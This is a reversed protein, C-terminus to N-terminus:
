ILFGTLFEEVAQGVKRLAQEEEMIAFHDAATVGRVTLRAHSVFEGYGNTEDGNWAENENPLRPIILTDGDFSRPVYKDHLLINHRIQRLLLRRYEVVDSGATTAELASPVKFYKECEADTVGGPRTPTRERAASDILVVFVNDEGAKHLENAVEYALQGAFSFGILLHPGRPQRQRLLACHDVAIAQLSKYHEPQHFSVNEVGVLDFSPLYPALVSHQKSTGTIAFFAFIQHRMQKNSARNPNLYPLFYDEWDDDRQSWDITCKQQQRKLPQHKKTTDYPSLANSRAELVLEHGNMKLSNDAEFGHRAKWQTYIDHLKSQNVKGNGTLPIAVVPVFSRPIMFSPLLQSARAKLTTLIEPIGYDLWSRDSDDRGLSSKEATSINCCFAVLDSDLALVVTHVNQTSLTKEVEGLELRRGNLKVQRDKRSQYMIEGSSSYSGMDGTNYLLGQGFPNDRFVQSTEGPQCYYGDSLQRGSCWITGISGIPVRRMNEDLIHVQMGVSPRGICRPDTSASAHQWSIVVAETPGYANIVRVTPSWREYVANTAMEGALCLSRINPLADPYLLSAISPTVNISTAGSERLLTPLRSMTEEQPALILTAGAYISGFIDSQSVDFVLRAFSFVRDDSDYEIAEGMMVGYGVVQRHPMIVAKPTGTTGSTFLIAATDDSTATPQPLTSSDAVSVTLTSFLDEATIIPCKSGELSTQPLLSQTERSCIIACPKIQELLLETRAPPNDTDLAVYACDARHIAHIACVMNISKDMFIAIRSKPELEIIARLRKTGLEVLSLLAKYTLVVPKQGKKRYFEVATKHPSQRSRNELLQWCTLSEYQRPLQPGSILGDILKHHGEDMLDLDCLQKKIGCRSEAIHHLVIRFTGMIRHLQQEEVEGGHLRANVLVSSDDWALKILLPVDTVEDMDKLMLQFEPHVAAEPKPPPYSTILTTNFLRSKGSLDHIQKLSLADEHEAIDLFLDTVQEIFSSLEHTWDICVRLPVTNICPGVVDQICEIDAGRRGSVVTGFVVDSTSLYTSLVLAWAAHFLLPMTTHHYSAAAQLQAPSVPFSFRHLQDDSAKYTSTNMTVPSKDACLPNALISPEVDRMQSQWFDLDTNELLGREYRSLAIDSFQIIQPPLTQGIYIRRVEDLVKRMSSGDILAHHCTWTCLVQNTDPSRHIYLASLQKGFNAQMPKSPKDMQVLPTAIARPKLTIQVLRIGDQSLGKGHTTTHPALPVFVTRFISHRELVVAWAHELLAVNTDTDSTEYDYSHTYYRSGLSALLMSAQGDTAPAMKEVDEPNLKWDRMGDEIANAQSQMCQPIIYEIPHAPPKPHSGICGSLSSSHVHAINLQPEEAIRRICQAWMDLLERVEDARHIATSYFVGLDLEGAHNLGCEIDLISFRRNTPDQYMGLDMDINDFSTYMSKQSRQGLYNFTIMGDVPATEIASSLDVRAMARRRTQEVASAFDGVTGAVPVNFIIPIIRTFWGVTRTLDLEELNLDRGHSEFHLQVKDTPPLESQWSSLGLILGALIMDVPEANGHRLQLTSIDVKISMFDGSGEANESLHNKQEATLFSGRSFDPSTTPNQARAKVTLYDAWEAFSSFESAIPIGQLLDDLDMWIVQWSVIDIALHHVFIACYLQDGVHFGGIACIRGSTLDLSSQLKELEAPLEQMSLLTKTVFKTHGLNQMPICITQDKKETSHRSVVLRLMPHAEVIDCWARRFDEFRHKKNLKIVHGQNFWDENARESAFFWDIIPTFPIPSSVMHNEVDTTSRSTGSLTSVAGADCNKSGAPDIFEILANITPYQYIDKVKLKFGMKTLTTRLRIVSISDGGLTFFSTEDSIHRNGLIEQFAGQIRDKTTPTNGLPPLTPTHVAMNTTIPTSVAEVVDFPESAITGGFFRVLDAVTPNQYIDKVKCKLGAKTFASRLRIVSISDGGLSFFNSSGQLTKVGLITGIAAKIAVQVRNGDGPPPNEVPLSKTTPTSGRVEVVGPEAIDDARTSTQGASEVNSLAIVSGMTPQRQNSEELKDNTAAQPLYRDLEEESLEVVLKKVAKRDLKGNNNMPIDKVPIWLSPMFYPPLETKMSTQLRVLLTALGALSITQLAGKAHITSDTFVVVLCDGSQRKIMMAISKGQDLVKNAASEMAGLEVRLGRLNVMTDMRGLCVISGDTEFRACDGTLYIRGYQKTDQFAQPGPPAKLYGRALQDGGLALQGVEGIGVQNLNEDLVYVFVNELPRGINAIDTDPFCQRGLVDVTAETPGYINFLTAKAAWVERCLETMPEGGIDLCEVDPLANADLAGAITPTTAIHTIKLTAMTDQLDALMWDKRGICLTAGVSLTGFIDIVSVDFTWPALQLLRKNPALRYLPRLAVTANRLAYNQIAVGKPKGTSGSTYLVYALHEPLRKTILPTPSTPLPTPIGLCSVGVGALRSKLQSALNIRLPEKEPIFVVAAPECDQIITMNWDVPNILEIPVYAGGSMMIALITIVREVSADGVICIARNLMSQQGICASLYHALGSVMHEMEKYSVSVENEFIIATASPRVRAQEMVQVDAFPTSEVMLNPTGHFWAPVKQIPQTELHQSTSNVKLELAASETADNVSTRGRSTLEPYRPAKVDACLGELNSLHIFLGISRIRRLLSEYELCIESVEAESVRDPNFEVSMGLKSKGDPKMERTITFALPFKASIGPMVEPLIEKCPQIARVQERAGAPVNHYTFMTDFDGADCGLTELLKEFPIDSYELTQTLRNQFFQLNDLISSGEKLKSFKVPLTNIFCGYLNQERPGRCTAPILVSSGRTQSRLSLLLQFTFLYATFPTSGFEYAWDVPDFDFTASCNVTIADPYGALESTPRAPLGYLSEPSGFLDKFFRQATLVKDSKLIEHHRHSFDLYTQTEITEDADAQEAVAACLEAWVGSITQEDAVCHHFNLILYQKGDPLIFGTCRVLHGETLNFERVCEEYSLRAVEEIATKESLGSLDHVVSELQESENVIQLLTSDDTFDFHTRFIDHEKVIHELSTIVYSMQVGHLRYASPLSYTSDGLQEQLLYFRKQMSSALGQQTNTSRNPQLVVFSEDDSPDLALLPDSGTALMQDTINDILAMVTPCHMIDRMSISMEPDHRLMNAIFAMCSFSDLGLERLNRDETISEVGLSKSLSDKILASFRSRSDHLELATNTNEALHAALLRVSPYTTIARLSIELEPEERLMFSIFSMAAFSDLGIERLNRDPNVDAVGLSKRLSETILSLLRSTRESAAAYINASKSSVTEDIMSIRDQTPSSMERLMVPTAPCSEKQTTEISSRFDRLFVSEPILTSLVLNLPKASRTNDHRDILKTWANLLVEIDAKPYKRENFQVLIELCESHVFVHWMLDLMPREPSIIDLTLDTMDSSLSDYAQADHLVFQIDFQTLDLGCASAVTNIAMDSELALDVGERIHKILDKLSDEDGLRSRLLATHTLNGMVHQSFRLPLKGRSSIPITTTVDNSRAYRHLVAHFCSLLDVFPLSGKNAAVSSFQITQRTQDYSSDYCRQMPAISKAGQMRYKWEDFSNDKPRSASHGTLLDTLSTGDFICQESTDMCALRIFKFLRASTLEDVLIHHITSHLLTSKGDTMVHFSALPGKKLDILACNDPIVLEPPLDAEWTHPTSSFQIKVLIEDHVIQYLKGTSVDFDFTTRFLELHHLVDLLGSMVRQATVGNFRWIRQVNYTADQLREQAIWMALQSLLAPFKGTRRIPTSSPQRSPIKTMLAEGANLDSMEDNSLIASLSSAEVLETIGAMTAGNRLQRYTLDPLQFHDAILHRLRMFGLSDLGLSSLSTNVDLVKAGLAEEVVTAIENKRPSDQRMTCKAIASSKSSLANNVFTRLAKRDVKRSALLPIEDIQYIVPQLREPLKEQCLTTLRLLDLTANRAVVLAHLSRGDSTVVASCVVDPDTNIVEEIEEPVVRMGSIKMQDDIRGLIRICPKGDQGVHSYFGRDGTKYFLRHGFAPVHTFAAQTAFTNGEYGAFLQNGAVLIEGPEDLHCIEHRDNVLIVLNGPLATYSIQEVPYSTPRFTLVQIAAETPGYAAVVDVRKAWTNLLDLPMMEGGLVVTRLSPIEDPSLIRLVTPTLHVWNIQLRNMHGILDSKLKDDHLLFLCSGSSLSGYIDIASADFVYNAFLLIRSSPQIGYIPVAAQVASAVAGHTLTCAKPSSTSGSTFMIYCPMDPHIMPLKSVPGSPTNSAANDLVTRFKDVVLIQPQGWTGISALNAFGDESTIIVTAGLKKVAFSIKHKPADFELPCYARGSKLVALMAVVMWPSKELVIPIVKSNENGYNLLHLALRDTLADLEAYTLWSLGTSLARNQGYKAACERFLSVLTSKNTSRQNMDLAQQLALQQETYDYDHSFNSVCTRRCSHFPSKIERGDVAVLRINQGFNLQPKSADPHNEFVLLADIESLPSEFCRMIDPTPVHDHESMKSFTSYTTQVCQRLNMRSSLAVVCPVTNLFNGISNLDETHHSRGSTVTWFGTRVSTAQEWPEALALAFAVQVMTFPTVGLAEARARLTSKSLSGSINAELKSHRPGNMANARQTLRPFQVGALHQRWLAESSSRDQTLQQAFYGANSRNLELPLGESYADGLQKLLTATSWGDFVSHHCTFLLTFTGLGQEIFTMRHMNTTVEIGLKMDNDLIKEFAEPSPLPLSFDRFVAERTNAKLEVALYAVGPAHGRELPVFITRLSPNANCVERWARKLKSKQIPGELHLILQSHYVGSDPKLLSQQVMSSQMSTPPYVVDIDDQNIGADTIQKLLAQTDMERKLHRFIDAPGKEEKDSTPTSQGSTSLPTFTVMGPFKLASYESLTPRSSVSSPSTSRFTHETPSHDSSAIHSKRSLMSANDYALVDYLRSLCPNSQMKGVTCGRVGLGRVRACFRIASVSDGGSKFFSRNSDVLADGIPLVEVWAAVLAQMLKDDLEEEGSESLASGRGSSRAIRSDWRPNDNTGTERETAIAPMTLSHYVNINIGHQYISVLQDHLRRRDIKGTRTVPMKKVPFWCRPVMAPLLKTSICDRLTQLNDCLINTISMVLSSDGAGNDPLAILSGETDPFEVFCTLLKEDPRAHSVVVACRQQAEVHVDITKEVDSINFRVGSIKVQDDTRGILTFVGQLDYRTIDGTDYLKGLVPHVILRENASQPSIYGSTLQDGNGREAAGIFLRGPIGPFVPNHQSDLVFARVSPSPKGITCATTIPKTTVVFDHTAITTEAPGYSIQIDVLGWWRDYLASPVPEGGLVISKLSPVASPSEIASIMTPTAIAHTVAMHRLTEELSTIFQDHPAVVLTAGALFTCFVEMLSVDFSLSTLMAVRHGRRINLAEVQSCISSTLAGHSIRFSKPEATSGSTFAIYADASTRVPSVVDSAVSVYSGNQPTSIVVRKMTPTAFVLYRREGDVDGAKTLIMAPNLVGLKSDLVAPTASTDFSVFCAGVQIVALVSVLYEVSKDMFLVVVDGIKVGEGRLQTAVSCTLRILEQYTVDRGEIAIAVATPHTSATIRIHDLVSLDQGRRQLEQVVPGPQRTCADISLQLAQSPTQTIIEKVTSEESRSSLEVVFDSFAEALTEVFKKSFPCTRYEFGVKVSSGSNDIHIILDFHSGGTPDELKRYQVGSTEFDLHTDLPDHYVFLADLKIKHETKCEAALWSLISEVQQDHDVCERYKELTTAEFTLSEQDLDLSVPLIALTMCYGMIGVFRPDVSRTSTPIGMLYNTKGTIRSLFLQSFSLWAGFANAKAGRRATLRAAQQQPLTKWHINAATSGTISLETSEGVLDCFLAEPRYNRFTNRWWEMDSAHRSEILGRYLKAYQSYELAKSPAASPRVANGLYEDMVESWFANSSYEDIVMHHFTLIVLWQSAEENTQYITARAVSGEELDFDTERNVEQDYITKILSTGASMAYNYASCAQNFSLSSVSPTYHSHKVKATVEVEEFSTRTENFTTNFIEHKTYVTRICHLFRNTDVNGSLEYGIRVTYMNNGFSKTARYMSEQGPSALYSNTQEPEVTGLRSSLKRSSDLLDAISQITPHNLLDTISLRHDTREYLKQIVWVADMSNFGWELLDDRAPVVQQLRQRVIGAVQRGFDTLHDSHEFGTEDLGPLTSLFARIQSTDVKGNISQPIHGIVIVRPVMYAPLNAKCATFIEKRLTEFGYALQIQSDQDEFSSKPSVFAYLGVRKNITHAIVVARGCGPVAQVTERIEGLEIRQGNIKVQDDARGRLHLEGSDDVFGFDGTAYWRDSPTPDSAGQVARVFKDQAEGNYYGESVTEGSSLVEGIEGAPLLQGRDDVVAIRAYSAPKGVCSPSVGRQLRKINTTPAECPGYVNLLTIRGSWANIIEETCPEGCTVMCTISPVSDPQLTSIVSPTLQVTDSGLSTIQGALDTLTADQSAQHLQSGSLLASLIDLLHVDFSCSSFQFVSRSSSLGLETALLRAQPMLNKHTLKVAKPKGTSGSTFLVTAVDTCKISPWNGVYLHNAPLKIRSEHGYKGNLRLPLINQPLQHQTEALCIAFEIPISQMLSEIRAKPLEPNIPVYIAGLKLIALIAIVQAPSRPLLVAVLQGHSVQCRLDNALLDIYKSVQGYNLKDFNEYNIAIDEDHQAVVTRFCADICLGPSLSAETDPIMKHM